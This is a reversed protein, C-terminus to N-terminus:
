GEMYESILDHARNTHRGALVLSSDIFCYVRKDGFSWICYHLQWYATHYM